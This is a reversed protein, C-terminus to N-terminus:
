KIKKKRQPFILSVTGAGVSLPGSITLIKGIEKAMDLAFDLYGGGTKPLKPAPDKCAATAACQVFEGLGDPVQSAAKGCETPCVSAPDCPDTAECYKLGGEGDPVWSELQGCQDPCVGTKDCDQTNCEQTGTPCAAGTENPELDVIITQIGGGCLEDCESWHWMCDIPCPATGPCNVVGGCTDDIEYPALGCENSCAATTLPVCVEPQCSPDGEFSIFDGPHGQHGSWGDADVYVLHRNAPNGPPNHCVWIKHDEIPVCASVPPEGTYGDNCICKGSNGIEHANPGCEINCAPTAPCSVSGGCGDLPNSANQGCEMPCIETGVPECCAPTAPCDCTGGCGNSPNSADQGCEMPCVCSPVCQPAEIKCDSSCGDGSVNNGDDCEEKAPNLQGNGCGADGGSKVDFPNSAILLSSIVLMILTVFLARKFKNM